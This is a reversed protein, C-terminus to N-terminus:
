RLLTFTASKEYAKGEFDTFQVVAVYVGMQQKNGKFTGDWKGNPDETEFLKEGWRNFIQLKYTNIATNVTFYHENNNDSNPSFATPIYVNPTFNFCRENSWSEQFRGANEHAKVRFCIRYSSLDATYNILEGPQYVGVSSFEESNNERIMLEYFDVGNEWGLYSSFDLQVDFSNEVPNGQLLVNTHPETIIQNGCIDTAIVRYVFATNDTNLPTELHNKYPLTTVTQWNGIDAAARKQLEYDGLIAVPTEQEWAIYMRDDPFGVSVKKIDLKLESVYVTMRLTDSVCGNETTEVVWVEAFETGDWTVEISDSDNQTIVGGTVNWEFTSNPLGSISYKQQSYNPGCVVNEGEIETADPNPHVTVTSDILMGLCSDKSLEIVEIIYTGAQDWVKRIQKTGQGTFGTSEGNITWEYTSGALGFVTYVFERDGACMSFEGEIENASPVENITVDLYVWPSLCPIMNVSDYSREQVGIRGTGLNSWRVSTQAMSDMDQRIGNTVDWAYVSGKSEYVFYDKIEDECVSIEGIPQQGKLNHDITVSISTPHSVCGYQDTEVVAVSGTGIGGWDVKIAPTGAGSALTGGSVSWTYSSSSPPNEVMYEIGTRHPCVSTPGLIVPEPRIVEVDFTNTDGPCGLSNTEVVYISYKGKSPFDFTAQNGSQSQLIGGTSLWQYSNEPTNSVSFQVGTTGECIIAAGVITNSPPIPLLEIDRVITDAPCGFESVEVSRIRGKTTNVDWKVEIIESTDSIIEGGEVEWWFTSTAKNSAARYFHTANQCVTDDGLIKDNGIFPKVKIQVQTHAFKEPCGDDTVKVFVKYPEERDQDCDPTWCLESEVRKYGTKRQLTAYPPPMFPNTGFLEGVGEITVNDDDEDTGLMPFCLKEGVEIEFYDGLISSAKPKKNGRCDLVLIQMDLRVVGIAKGNRYETVEVAVVYSGPSPSYLETFGTNRNVNIYGSSGFPQNRNYGPRYQVPTIPMKLNLPPDPSNGTSSPSGGAYSTGIRYVLSDGDADFANFLFQNTDLNCMFPSPVGSFFPSSNKLSPDPIYAYFTQGQFPTGDEDILNDQVNRCCRVFSLHYGGSNPQLEITGEYFGRKICVNKPYFDCFQTGPPKVEQEILLSFNYTKYWDNDANDIHVGLKITKDFAVTSNKCDRFMDITVKYQYNGNPLQKLYEYSM